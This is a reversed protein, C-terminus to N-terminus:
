PNRVTLSHEVVTSMPTYQTNGALVLLIKRNSTACKTWPKTVLPPYRHFNSVSTVEDRNFTALPKNILCRFSINSSSVSTFLRLSSIVHTIFVFWLFTPPPCSLPHLSLLHETSVPVLCTLIHFPM